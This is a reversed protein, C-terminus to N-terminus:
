LLLFKAQLQSSTKGIGVLLSIKALALAFKQKFDVELFSTRNLLFDTTKAEKAM